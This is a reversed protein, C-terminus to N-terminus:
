KLIEFNELAENLELLASQIERVDSAISGVRLIKELDELAQKSGQAVVRVSGNPLNRIHGSLLVEQANISDVKAKIFRRFGVGQVRGFIIFERCEKM